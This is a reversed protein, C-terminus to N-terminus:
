YTLPVGPPTSLIIIIVIVAIAVLSASANLLSTIHKNNTTM